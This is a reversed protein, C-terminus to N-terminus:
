GGGLIVRAAQIGAALAIPVLVAGMILVALIVSGLTVWRMYETKDM